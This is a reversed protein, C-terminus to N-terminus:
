KMLLMKKVSTFDGAVIRYLYMGSALNLANFRLSHVGAPKVENLLTAVEQGLVNYVKLTVKSQVPISFTIKTSPNFPNPYNQALAFVLPQTEDPVSVPWKPQHLDYDWHDYYAPNISGFQSLITYATDTDVVNETHNNGFGGRGGENDGGYLGFKFTQGVVGKDGIGVSDPSVLVMRSWISDGAVRDGNTGDDWMKKAPNDRLGIGWDSGTPNGWAGLATGNIWVGWTQLSDADSPGINRFASQVDYLTDLGYKLQYFAPRIDVEYHVNVNRALTRKNTFQPQRRAQTISTATDYVDTATALSASMPIAFQRREAESPTPGSYYFNYYSERVDQGARILYYQYDLDKGKATIITDTVTFVTGAVRQLRKPRAAEQATGFYGTRVQITDNVVDVGGSAAAQALNVRFRIAITDPNARQSPRENNYFVWKLTTDKKGVPVTFSRNPQGGLEDRGWNYGILFKYGISNGATVSDKPIRVAGSWFSAPPATYGDGNSAASEKTLYFTPAWNLDGTPPGGGRVGVTDTNNNYSFTGSSMPGMMNVRVYVMMFNPDTNTWPRFYQARNNAGNNWFEVELTTDKDQVIFSRNANVQSPFDGPVVGQEWGTGSTYAIVYKYSLTDGEQLYLTKKWYDGGAATMNNQADNGWTIPSFGGAHNVGGRMQVTQGSVPLTDPVTATNCVFTVARVNKTTYKLAIGTGAVYGLSNSLFAANTLAGTTGPHKPAWTAGADTSWWVRSAGSGSTSNAGVVVVENTGRIPKANRAQIASHAGVDLTLTDGWTRGGDTTKHVYNSFGSAVQRDVAYGISDDAFNISRFYYNQSTGGTLPVSWADWTEGCDTTKAIVADTGSKYATIWMTRGYVDFPQRYTIYSYYADHLLTPLSTQRTWTLGADTSRVLLFGSADYDGFAIVTDGDGVFSIGDIYDVHQYVTDWTAGADTTRIIAGQVTGLLALTDNKAALNTIGTTTNTARRTWTAGGDNSFWIYDASTATNFGTVFIRGSPVVKVSRFDYGSVEPTLRLWGDTTAETGAPMGVASSAREEALKEQRGNSDALVVGAILLPLLLMAFRKM